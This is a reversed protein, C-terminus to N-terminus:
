GFLERQTRRRRRERQFSEPGYLYYYYENLRAWFDPESVLRNVETDDNPLMLLGNNARVQNLIEM